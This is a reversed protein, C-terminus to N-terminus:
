CINKWPCGKGSIHKEFDERFYKLASQLPDMAGPAFICFTHKMGMLSILDELIVLDGPLGRGNEIDDLLYETWALGERCPTCWGCSERAFFKELNLVFGVPCTRDDLVVICGTGLRSGAKRMENFDMRVDLHKELMFGTSAGGPILGRFSYGPAMGGAHEELIERATTGMPLEWIGRKKVRGTVGYLKTGGDETHSLKRYWEAGNLIIPPINCLTEVNNVVTPKGWLGSETSHPPRPRPVGRRGEMANMLSSQEGCIYRGASVHIDFKLSYGSDLIDDGLYGKEHAEAIARKLDHIPVNYAWRLFIYAKDAQMAYAAIIMGEILLHPNGEVLIRDKFTGPEMEDANSILYRPRRPDKEIPAVSSLKKGMPFGAGGRGRLNARNVEEVVDAPSMTTLAKRMASYGGWQEYEKIGLPIGDTRMAATLPRTRLKKEKNM